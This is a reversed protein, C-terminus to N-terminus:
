FIGVFTSLSSGTYGSYASHAVGSQRIALSRPIAASGSTIAVVTLPVVLELSRSTSPILDITTGIKPVRWIGLGDAVEWPMGGYEKKRRQAQCGPQMPAAKGLGEGDGGNLAGGMWPHGKRWVGIDLDALPYKSSM